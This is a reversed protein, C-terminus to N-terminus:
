RRQCTIHYIKFTVMLTSKEDYIYDIDLMRTNYETESPQKGIDDVVYQAIEALTKDEVLEPLVLNQEMYRMFDRVEVDVYDAVGIIPKVNYVTGKYKVYEFGEFQLVM